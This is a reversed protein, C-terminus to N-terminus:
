PDIQANPWLFPFKINKESELFDKIEQLKEVNYNLTDLNPYKNALGESNLADILYFFELLYIDANWLKDGLLYKM